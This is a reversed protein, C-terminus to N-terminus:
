EAAPLPLEGTEPPDPASFDVPVQQRVAIKLVRGPELPEGRVIGNNIAMRNLDWVNGTRRSLQELNEGEQVVALRLRLEDILEVEGPRLERFSRSFGRFTGAYRQFRGKRAAASLRYITGRHVIWTVEAGWSGGPTAVLTRARYADLDGIRVEVGAELRVKEKEGYELAAAQPDEGRGHMELMTVADRDPAIAIVRSHQNDVKWGSPFSMSILLEPHLFRSERIVGERAPKGVSLGELRELYTPGEEFLGFSPRWRLMGARTSADAVREPTNPHSDFYGASRSFGRDLMVTRDLQKLFSAMGGPDVGAQATIEQGIVDAEREQSRSYAAQYGAGLAQVSAMTRSDGGGVVAGVMGLITALGVVKSHVDRRAAHRAVVHGIEHGLVNALEAESNSIILLGRSVYIHGGPLAFANPADMEVVAFHYDLDRYPARKAMAQGIENVYASLAPDDVLGLIAAVNEAERDDIEQEEEESMLIIERRNTVPNVACALLAFIAICSVSVFPTRRSRRLM